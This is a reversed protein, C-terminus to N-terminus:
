TSGTLAGSYAITRSLWIGLAQVTAPPASTTAAPMRTTSYARPSGSNSGSPYSSPPIQTLSQLAGRGFGPRVSAAASRRPGTNGAGARPARPCSGPSGAASVGKHASDLFSAGRRHAVRAAVPGAVAQDRAAEDEDPQAAGQHAPRVSGAADQEDQAQDDSGDHQPQDERTPAREPREEPAFRQGRNM